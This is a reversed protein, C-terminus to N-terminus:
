LNELYKKIEVRSPKKVNTVFYHFRLFNQQENCLNISKEIVDGVAVEMSVLIKILAYYNNFIINEIKSDLKQSIEAFRNAVIKKQEQSFSLNNEVSIVVFHRLRHGEGGLETGIFTKEHFLNNEQTDKHVFFKDPFDKFQDEIVSKTIKAKM